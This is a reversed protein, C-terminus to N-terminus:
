GAGTIEARWDIRGCNLETIEVGPLNEAIVGGSPPTLKLVSGKTDVSFTFTVRKTVSDVPIKITQPKGDLAASAWFVTAVNNRASERVLRFAKGAESCQLFLPIGGTENATHIGTPPVAHTPVLPNRVILPLRRRDGFYGPSLSCFELM